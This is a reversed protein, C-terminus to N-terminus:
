LGYLGVTGGTQQGSTHVYSHVNLLLDALDLRRSFTEKSFKIEM